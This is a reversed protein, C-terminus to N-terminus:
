SDLQSLDVGHRGNSYARATSDLTAPRVDLQNLPVDLPTGTVPTLQLRPRGGWRTTVVALGVMDPWPVYSGRMEVGPRGIRLATGQGVGALERKAMLYAVLYGVFWGISVALLVGYLGLFGPGSLQSHKWAYIGGLLVVTIVLSVLRSRVQRRRRQVKGALQTPDFPLHLEQIPEFLVSGYEPVSM